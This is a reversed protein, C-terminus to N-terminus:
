KKNESSPHHDFGEMHGAQPLDGAARAGSGWAVGAQNLLTEQGPLATPLETEMNM